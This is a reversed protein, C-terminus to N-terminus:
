RVGRRGRFCSALGSRTGSGHDQGWRRGPRYCHGARWTEARTRPRAPADDRGRGDPPNSSRGRRAHALRLRQRCGTTYRDRGGGGPQAFALRSAAQRADEQRDRDPFLPTLARGPCPRDGTVREHRGRLSSGRAPPANAAQLRPEYPAEVSRQESTVVVVSRKGLKAVVRPVLAGRRHHQVPQM